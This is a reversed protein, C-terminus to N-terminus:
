KITVKIARKNINDTRWKGNAKVCVAVKYEGASIKPSTYVTTDADLYAQVRWKGNLYVAVGYEQASPISKWKLRLQKGRVESSVKFENWYAFDFAEIKNWSNNPNYHNVIRLSDDTDKITILMDNGDRDFVIDDETLESSFEVRDGSSNSDQEDITDNGYGRGFIYTDNNYGGFLVDDGAKGDLIDNGSLGYIEDADDSGILKTDRTGYGDNFDVITGSGTIVLSMNDWDKAYKITGDAFHFEEIRNWSNNGNYQNTVRLSDDTGKISLIMDNEERSLVLDKATINEGFIVKDGSSNSNEEDITDNGYGRGFIYTDNHYGGFLVDDGAKGDLIDNGSLGYIADADDSGILKTDKTGYGDKFDVITGSGTIVLPMNDWDKALMVTEDAFHFEEIRNWSNIGNYQNTIRLSDDTGEISLIMDNGDRSLVLDDVTIDEGFIVKDGGSNSDEEDITDNGYGRGFIYTDNHYGGFLVDDGAKGDLIDNGSLGYIADADDSGILKTDRTGYGDNFDVITGRGTIVLSINDWDKALMVTEDAFHFEEIRNWSNNGNYQNTIRLSDDTGEISLIMDNGDRSLILDDVTIDEGFIVKDGGSNSDEEDITDNGYGRGFIYTDNHYGGFLVDDGAKGDLIDNGSLGYIADADDSGILKADRTGYGDNFDVITGSGTIVLSMNDWDKAYKITGDAFHFEEIRNWSNNGNYQNAIRLSDDTGEISLVMDYGDRDLVLDDVTINEGFVVKDGSSNSDEEDIIDQGYGRGFLYTDNGLGGYLIYNGGAGDLTDSGNTGRIEREFESIPDAYVCIASSVGIVGALCASLSRKILKM